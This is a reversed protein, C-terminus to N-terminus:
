GCREQFDRLSAVAEERTEAIQIVSQILPVVVKMVAPPGKVIVLKGHHRELYKQYYVAAGIGTSSIYDAESLDIVVRRHRGQQILERFAEAARSFHEQPVQGVISFILVEPQGVHEISIGPIGTAQSPM